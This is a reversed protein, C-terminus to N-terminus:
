LADFIEKNQVTRYNNSCFICLLFPIFEWEIEILWCAHRMGMLRGNSPSKPPSNNERKINSIPLHRRWDPIFIPSKNTGTVLMTLQDHLASTQATLDPSRNGLLSSIVYGCPRMIRKSLNIRSHGTWMRASFPCHIARKPLHCEAKRTGYALV